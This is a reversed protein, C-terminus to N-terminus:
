YDNYVDVMSKLCRELFINVHNTEFNFSHSSSKKDTFEDGKNKWFDFGVIENTRVDNSILDAFVIDDSTDYLEDYKVLCITLKHFKDSLTKVFNTVGSINNCYFSYSKRGRSMYGGRIGFATLNHDYFIYTVNIEKNENDYEVVKCILTDTSM